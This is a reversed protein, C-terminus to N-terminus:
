TESIKTGICKNSNIIRKYFLVICKPKNMHYSYYYERYLFIYDNYIKLYM